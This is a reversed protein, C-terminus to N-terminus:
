INFGLDIHYAKELQLKLAKCGTQHELRTITSNLEDEDSTAVVFWLNLRNEREYNHNVSPEASVIEAVEELRQPPVQMAVLSSAGATNPRVVAGIRSLIKDDKMTQLASMVQDEALGTEEAIAAYPRSVLPFDKQLRNIMDRTLAATEEM